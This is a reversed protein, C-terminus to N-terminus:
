KAEEAKAPSCCCKEVYKDALTCYRKGAREVCCCKEVVQGTLSCRQKGARAAAAEKAAKACCSTQAQDAAFAPVSLLGTCCLALLTRKSM